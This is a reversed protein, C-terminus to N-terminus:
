LSAIKKRICITCRKEGWPYIIHYFKSGNLNLKRKLAEIYKRTGIRNIYMISIFILFSSSNFSSYLNNRGSMSPEHIVNM